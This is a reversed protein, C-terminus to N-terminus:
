GKPTPLSPQCREQTIHTERGKRGDKTVQHLVSHAAGVVFSSLMIFQQYDDPLSTSIDTTSHAQTCSLGPHGDACCITFDVMSHFARLVSDLDELTDRWTVKQNPSCFISTRFGYQAPNSTCLFVTTAQQKVILPMPSSSRSNCVKPM